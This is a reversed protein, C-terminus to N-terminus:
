IQEEEEEIFHWVVAPEEGLPDVDIVVTGNSVEYSEMVFAHNVTETQLSSNSSSLPTQVTWLGITIGLAAVASGAALPRFLRNWWDGISVPENAIPRPQHRAVTQDLREEIRSWLSDLPAQAVQLATSDRLAQRVQLTQAVHESCVNCEKVHKDVDVAAAGDLEEDLWRELVDKKMGCNM